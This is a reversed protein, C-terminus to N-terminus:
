ISYTAWVAPNFPAAICFNWASKDWKLLNEEQGELSIGLICILANKEKFSVLTM